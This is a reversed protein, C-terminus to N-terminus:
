AAPTAGTSLGGCGTPTPTEPPDAGRLQAALVAQQEM